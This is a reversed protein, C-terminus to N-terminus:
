ILNLFLDPARVRQERYIKVGTNLHYFATVKVKIQLYQKEFYIKPRHFIELM